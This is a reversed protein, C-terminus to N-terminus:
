STQVAVNFGWAGVDREFAYGRVIKMAERRADIGLRLEARRSVVGDIRLEFGRGIPDAKDETKFRRRMDQLFALVNGGQIWSAEAQFIEANMKEFFEGQLDRVRPDAVGPAKGGLWEDMVGSMFLEIIQLAASRTNDPQEEEVDGTADYQRRKKPDSLIALARKTAIFADDTGGVDPHTEMARRLYARKVEAATADRDVELEAYPDLKRKRKAM